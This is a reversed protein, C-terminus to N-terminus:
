VGMLISVKIHARPSERHAMAEVVTCSCLVTAKPRQFGFLIFPCQRLTSNAFYIEYKLDLIANDMILVLEM